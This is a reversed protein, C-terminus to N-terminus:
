GHISLIFCTCQMTVALCSCPIDNNRLCSPPSTLYSCHVRCCIFGVRGQAVRAAPGRPPQLVLVQGEQGQFRLDDGHQSRGRLFGAPDGQDLLSRGEQAAHAGRGRSVELPREQWTWDLLQGHFRLCPSILHLDSLAM